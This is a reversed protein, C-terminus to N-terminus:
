GERVPAAAKSLRELDADVMSHVLEPFSTKPEWGLTAGRPTASSRDVEAPRLFAADHGRTRGTSAWAASPPRCFARVSHPESTAVVYNDPEDQQLM